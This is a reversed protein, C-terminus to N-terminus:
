VDVRMWHRVDFYGLLDSMLHPANPVCLEDDVRVFMEGMAEAVSSALSTSVNACPHTCLPWQRTGGNRSVMAISETGAVRTVTETGRFAYRPDRRITVRVLVDGTEPHEDAYATDVLPHGDMKSMSSHLTLAITRHPDHQPRMRLCTIMHRARWARPSLTRRSHLSWAVTDLLHRTVCATMRSAANVENVVVQVTCTPRDQRQPPSGDAVDEDDFDFCPVDTELHTRVHELMSPLSSVTGNRAVVIAMCTVAVGPLRCHCHGKFGIHDMFTHFDHVMRRLRADTNERLARTLTLARHTEEEARTRELSHVGRWVQADVKHGEFEGRLVAIHETSVRDYQRCWGTTREVLEYAVELSDVDPVHVVIDVDSGNYFIGSGILTCEYANDFVDAAIRAVVGDHTVDHDEQRAAATTTLPVPIAAARESDLTVEEFEASSTTTETLPCLDSETAETSLEELARLNGRTWDDYLRRLAQVYAGDEVNTSQCVMHARETTERSWESPTSHNSCLTAAMLHHLVPHKVCIRRMCPTTVADVLAHTFPSTILWRRWLDAQQFHDLWNMLGELLRTYTAPEAAVKCMTDYVIHLEALMLNKSKESLSYGLYAGVAVILEDTIGFRSRHIGVFVRRAEVTICETEIIDICEAGCSPELARVVKKCIPTLHSMVPFSPRPVRCPAHLEVCPNHFGVITGCEFRHWYLTNDGDTIEMRRIPRYKSLDKVDTIVETVPSVYEEFAVVRHEADYRLDDLRRVSPFMNRRWIHPQPFRIFRLIPRMDIAYDYFDKKLLNTMWGYLAEATEDSCPIFLNINVQYDRVTALVIGHTCNLVKISYSLFHQDLSREYFDSCESVLGIFIMWLVRKGFTSEYNQTLGIALCIGSLFVRADDQTAPTGHSRSSLITPMNESKTPVLSLDSSARPTSLGLRTGKKVGEEPCGMLDGWRNREEEERRERRRAM